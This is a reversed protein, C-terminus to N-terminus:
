DKLTTARCFVKKVKYGIPDQRPIVGDGPVGYMLAAFAVRWHFRALSLKRFQPQLVKIWSGDWGNRDGTEHWLEREGWLVNDGLHQPGFLRLRRPIQALAYERALATWEPRGIRVLGNHIVFWDIPSTPYKTLFFPRVAIGSFFDGGCSERFQGSTYSKTINIKFGFFRFAAELTSIFNPDDSVIMDDGYVHAPTCTGTLEAVAEILSRFLLTELEFTFGNGMSSFKELKVTRGECETFPARLSDLVQFWGEPLILKVVKYCILDSANSLDITALGGNKSGLRALDRHLDQGKSLDIGVM